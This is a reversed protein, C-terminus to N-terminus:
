TKEEEAMAKWQAGAIKSVETLSASPNAAKISAREANMWLFYATQPRKPVNIEADNKRKTFSSSSTEQDTSGLEEKLTPAAAASNVEDAGAIETASDIDIGPKECFYDDFNDHPFETSM